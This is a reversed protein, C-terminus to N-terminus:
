VYDFTYMENKWHRIRKKLDTIKISSPKTMSKEFGTKQLCKM